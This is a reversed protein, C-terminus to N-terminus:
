TYFKYYHYTHQTSSVYLQNRIRIINDIFM